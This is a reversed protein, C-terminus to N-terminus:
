SRKLWCHHYTCITNEKICVQCKANTPYDCKNIVTNWHLDKICQQRIPRGHYCIYYRSCDVQSPMFSLADPDRSPCQVPEEVTDPPPTPQDVPDNLTCNVNAPSDCIGSDINFWFDGPCNAEIAQGQNCYFFYQCGKPNTVFIGTPMSQCPSRQIIPMTRGM